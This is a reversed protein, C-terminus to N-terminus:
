QEDQCVSKRKLSSKDVFGQPDHEVAQKGSEAMQWICQRNYENGSYRDAQGQIKRSRKIEGACVPQEEAKGKTCNDRYQKRPFYQFVVYWFFLHAAMAFM